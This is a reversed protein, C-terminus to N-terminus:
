NVSRVSDPTFLVLKCGSVPSCAIIARRLLRTPADDPFAVNFPISPIVKLASQLTDDGSIFKVDEVKSGAAFLLFYEASANGAALRDLKFTRITTLENTANFLVAFASAGPRLRELRARTDALNDTVGPGAIVALALQYAHIADQNKRQREYVQGLHDAEVAGESLMWAANLYREAEEYNGMRFHVWGLTDWYHALSPTHGLDENKLDALKVKASAEEEERVAKEAYALALPLQKDADAMQYGIDNFWRPRPDMEIAKKFAAASKDDNGARMYASGLRVYLGAQDPRLKIASELADAAEAYRKVATLSISLNSFAEYEEPNAKVVKRLVAVAEEYKRMEMLSTVLAKYTIPLRPDADYAARLQALALDRQGTFVYLQALWMRGRTFHPDAEVAHKLLDIAGLVNNSQAAAVADDYARAAKPDDSNPLNSIANQLSNGSADGSSVAIYREHDDSVAKAFKKYADYESLPVERLKVVFHRETILVGDKVTYSAHYDAFDQKLDVAGPLDPSYGKPLEVRSEYQIQGAEALFVPHSPKTDSARALLPPIPSSVKRESWNPYDKRKYTYAFHFPEDTKEPSSATVESVDGAFGSGYSIQQVLDKWQPMPVRRFATRLLVENDDGQVTREIKGELTGTDDLKATIKFTQSAKSPPDAPTTVLAPPKGDAIVLARKDRLQTLLYAFPAVEITTDFWQFGSGQPVAGIVHDFQGPSPVEVDIEHSSSILAPYAKIGAADLLSAFLTYKDKCDGYQNSLVEAATHPQYRGIGFAIGIYRFNTSVYKYIAHLKANDDSMGKTLEAAKARIEPTPKVREQQLSGYWQGVEEWTQFSSIQVDAAPFTGRAAQYLKTEQEAKQDESSKHELQSTTWTFVRRATEQTIAPKVEPSNWKVPRDRPVSIQLQEQLIIGDRSFNYAYWFQGPALPKTGLWHSQFELVDGVSLGKVAVHKERLDSYFPAQRTIEAAMDQTNEAPTPVVSGDPKRVRVYDIDMSETSGQYSFTLLGYRQLGADSQIRVRATQERTSTGDNEFVIRTSTQEVVFAEKSYDPKIDPKSAAQAHALPIAFTFALLVIVRRSHRFM